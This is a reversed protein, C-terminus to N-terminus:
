KNKLLNQVKNKVLSMVLSGDRSGEIPRKQPGEQSTPSVVSSCQVKFLSVGASCKLYSMHILTKARSSM